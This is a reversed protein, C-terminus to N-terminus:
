AEPAASTDGVGILETLSASKAWFDVSFNVAFEEITDISEQSLEIADISKPWVGHIFYKVQESETRGIQTLEIVLKYDGDAKRENLMPNGIFDMWQEMAERVKWNINNNFTITYDDYAPDGAIKRNAGMWYLNSIEGQTRTPISAGKVSYQMANNFNGAGPIDSTFKLLFRNPRALDKLNARFDNLTLSPM